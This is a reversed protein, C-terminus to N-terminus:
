MLPFSRPPLRPLFRGQGPMPFRPRTTWTPTVRDTEEQARTPSRRPAAPGDPTPPSVGAERSFSARFFNPNEHDSSTVAASLPRVERDVLNGELCVGVAPEVALARELRARGGAVALKEVSEDQGHDARQGQGLEAGIMDLIHELLSSGAAKRLLGRKVDVTAQERDEALGNM